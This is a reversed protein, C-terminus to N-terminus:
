EQKEKYVSLKALSLAGKPYKITIHNEGATLSIRKLNEAIQGNSGAVTFSAIYEGNAYFIM